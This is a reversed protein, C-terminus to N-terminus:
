KISVPSPDNGTSESNHILEGFTARINKLSMQNQSHRGGPGDISTVRWLAAGNEQFDDHAYNSISPSRSRSPIVLFSGARQASPASACRPQHSHVNLVAHVVGRRSWRSTRIRTSYHRHTWEMRSNKIMLQRETQLM